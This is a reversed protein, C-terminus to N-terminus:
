NPRVTTTGTFTPQAFPPVRTKMLAARICGEAPKGAAGGSVGVSVVSGDSGFTITAHSIADDPGLCARASPLAAGLAGQLAGQSPRLPVSGLAPPPTEPSTTAPAAPASTVGAAQQMLTQLDAGASPAASAIPTPTPASAVVEPITPRASTAVAPKISALTAAPTAGRPVVTATSAPPLSAPDIGRDDPAASAVPLIPQAPAAVAAPLPIPPPSTAVAVAASPDEHQTHRSGFVVGVAVAAVAVLSSIGVWSTKKRIPGPRRSPTGSPPLAESSPRTSPVSPTAEALAVATAPSPRPAEPTVPAAAVVNGAGLAALHIVGSNEERETKESSSLPERPSPPSGSPASPPPGANALRALDRFSARDRERSAATMGVGAAKPESKPGPSTSMEAEGPLAPFPPRLVDDDSIPPSTQALRTSEGSAIRSLIRASRDESVDDDDAAEPWAKLVADLPDSAEGGDGSKRPTEGESM